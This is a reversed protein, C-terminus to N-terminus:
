VSGEEWGWADGGQGEIQEKPWYMHTLKAHLFGKDFLWGPTALEFFHDRLPRFVVHLKPWAFYKWGVVYVQLTLFGNWFNDRTRYPLYLDALIWKATGIRHYFIRLDLITWAWLVKIAMPGEMARWFPNRFDDSNGEGFWKRFLSWHAILWFILNKM